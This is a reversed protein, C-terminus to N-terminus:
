VYTGDESCLDPLAQTFGISLCFDLGSKGTQCWGCNSQATCTACDKAFALCPDCDYCDTGTSICIFSHFTIRSEHNHTHPDVLPAHM